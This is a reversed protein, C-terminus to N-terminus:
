ECGFLKLTETVCGNNTPALPTCCGQAADLGYGTQCQNSTDLTNTSCTSNCFSVEFEHNTPGTCSIRPEGLSNAEENICTFGPTLVEFTTNVPLNYLGYSIDDVCFQDLEKSAPLDCSLTQDVACVPLLLSPQEATAITVPPEGAQETGQGIEQDIKFPECTQRYDEAPFFQKWEIVTLGGGSIACAKQM